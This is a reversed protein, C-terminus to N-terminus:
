GYRSRPSLCTTSPNWDRGDIQSDPEPQVDSMYVIVARSEAARRYTARRFGLAYYGAQKPKEIIWWLLGYEGDSPGGIQNHIDVTFHV